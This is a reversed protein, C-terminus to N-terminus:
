TLWVRGILLFITKDTTKIMSTINTTINTNLHFNAVWKEKTEVTEEAM